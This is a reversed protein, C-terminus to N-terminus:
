HRLNKRVGCWDNKVDCGLEIWSFQFLSLFCPDLKYFKLCIDIFNEFVDALLLVDQKLYHDHYDGINKMNFKNWIKICTIYEKDSRCCNLKEDNDGTKRDKLSGYSCKKCKKDNEESFRKFSNM